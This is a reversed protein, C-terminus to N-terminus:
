NLFRLQELLRENERKLMQVNTLPKKTTKRNEIKNRLKLKKIAKKLKKVREMNEFIEKLYKKKQKKFSKM